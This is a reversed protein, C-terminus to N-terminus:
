RKGARRGGPPSRTGARSEWHGGRGDGRSSWPALAVGEGAKAEEGPKTDEAM